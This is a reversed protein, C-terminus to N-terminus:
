LALEVHRTFHSSQLDLSRIALSHSHFTLNFFTYFTSSNFTDPRNGVTRCLPLVAIIYVAVLTQITKVCPNYKYLRLIPLCCSELVNGYATILSEAILCVQFNTIPLQSNNLRM